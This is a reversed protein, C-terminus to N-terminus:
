LQYAHLIEQRSENFELYLGLLSARYLDAATEDQKYLPLGTLFAQNAYDLNRSSIEGLDIPRGLRLALRSALRHQELPPLPSEPDAMLAIDLDSDPRLRDQAASGLLYLALIRPDKRAERCAEQRIRQLASATPPM